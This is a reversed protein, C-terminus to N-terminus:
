ILFIKPNEFFYFSGKKSFFIKLVDGVLPMYIFNMGIIRKKSLSNLKKEKFYYLMFCRFLGIFFTNM